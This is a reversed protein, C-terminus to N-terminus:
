VVYYGNIRSLPRTRLMTECLKQNSIACLICASEEVICCFLTLFLYTCLLAKLKQPATGGSGSLMSQGQVLSPSCAGSGVKKCIVTQSGLGWSWPIHGQVGSPDCGLGGVHEGIGPIKGMGLPDPYFGPWSFALINWCKSSLWLEGENCVCVCVCLCKCRMVCRQWDPCWWQVTLSAWLLMTCIVTM